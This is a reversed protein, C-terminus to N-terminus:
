SIGNASQVARIYRIIQTAESKSLSPVAPMDGFQWHHATAGLEIARYFANDAHHGPNYYGHVFPPGEGKSGGLSEGHCAACNAKYLSEGAAYTSDLEPVTTAVIPTSENKRDIITTVTYIGGILLFVVAIILPYKNRERKKKM